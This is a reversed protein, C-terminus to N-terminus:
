VVKLLLINLGLIGKKINYLFKNPLAEKDLFTEKWINWRYVHKGKHLTGM